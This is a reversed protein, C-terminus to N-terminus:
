ITQCVRVMNQLKKKMIDEPLFGLGCDPAIILRERPVHKLVEKVRDQIEEVSEVRSSAAQVVGLVIKSKKFLDFLSLDNHRHADEISIEDFGADDLKEALQFYASPDAKQYDKQDLYLPYGCCLHVVKTTGESVGVFCKKLNNIGFSLAKEPFRVMVPEDIQIYKCGAKSLAVVERNIEKVLIENIEKENDKYYENMVTNIITLPAPLTVKVPNKSMKQSTLWEKWIWPDKEKSSVPGTITPVKATYAGNRPSVKTLKEFDFGNLKRCFYYVYNERRMEGDTVVDIGIERQLKLIESSAKLVVEEMEEPSNRKSVENYQLIYEHTEQSVTFWDSIIEALYDPKRFSGIVTSTLPM